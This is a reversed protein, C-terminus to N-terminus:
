PVNIHKTWYRAFYGLFAGVAVAIVYGFPRAGLQLAVLLSGLISFFMQWVIPFRFAAPELDPAAILGLLLGAAGFLVVSRLSYGSSFGGFVVFLVGFGVAAYGAV